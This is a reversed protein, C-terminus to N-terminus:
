PYAPLIITPRIAYALYFPGYITFSSGSGSISLYDV